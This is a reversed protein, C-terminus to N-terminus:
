RSMRKHSDHKPMDDMDFFVSYDESDDELAVGSKELSEAHKPDPVHFIDFVKDSKHLVDAQVKEFDVDRALAEELKVRWVDPEVAKFNENVVALLEKTRPSFGKDDVM